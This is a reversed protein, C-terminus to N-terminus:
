KKYVNRRHGMAIVVVKKQEHLIHAILRYNGVRLKYEHRGKLRKFYRLPDRAATELKAIIRRAEKNDLSFLFSEAEESLEVDYNM